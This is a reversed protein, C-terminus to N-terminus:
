AVGRHTPPQYQTVMNAVKEALTWLEASDAPLKPWAAAEILRLIAALDAPSVRPFHEQVVRAIEKRVETMPVRERQSRISLWNLKRHIEEVLPPGTGNRM